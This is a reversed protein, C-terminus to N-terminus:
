GDVFTLAQAPSAGSSGNSSGALYSGLQAARWILSETTLAAMALQRDEASPRSVM